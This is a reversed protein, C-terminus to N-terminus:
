PLTGCSSNWSASAVSSTNVNVSTGSCSSGIDNCYFLSADGTNASYEINAVEPPTGGFGSFLGPVAYNDYVSNSQVLINDAQPTGGSSFISIAGYVPNVTDGGSTTITNSTVQACVVGNMSIGEREHNSISNSEISHLTGQLELGATGGYTASFMSNGDLTNNYILASQTNGTTANYQLYVAEGGGSQDPYERFNDFFNNVMIQPYIAHAVAIASGGAGYFTNYTM